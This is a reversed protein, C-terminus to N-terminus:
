PKSVPENTPSDRVTDRAPTHFLVPVLVYAQYEKGTETKKTESQIQWVRGTKTDLMYQDVAFEGIQGLVYRGTETALVRGKKPEQAVAAGSALLLVLAIRAYM